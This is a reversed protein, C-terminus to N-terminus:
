KKHTFSKLFTEFLDRHNGLFMIHHNALAKELFYDVSDDLVIEVQTRCCHENNPNSMITGTSLWWKDLSGGSVKLITVPQKTKFTGRIAVGKDSEYHSTVSHTETMKLPVTCHALTVSNKEKDVSVVNAMFSPQNTLLKVLMMTFTSPLDGECGAVMGGDNFYSLTYCATRETRLLLSFCEISFADLKFDQILANISDLVLQAEELQENSRNIFDAKQIFDSDRIGKISKKHDKIREFLENIPIEVINVGWKTKVKKSDINSAILWDSQKGILGLRFKQLKDNISLFKEEKDLAKTLNKLKDHIIRTEIGSDELYQRIEMAAPLSNNEPYTVLIPPQQSTSKKLFEIVVKETGGTGIFIWKQMNLNETASLFDEPNLTKWGGENLTALVRNNEKKNSLPSFFPILAKIL